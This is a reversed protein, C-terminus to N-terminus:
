CGLCGLGLAYTFQNIRLSTFHSMEGKHSGRSPQIVRSFRSFSKEFYLTVFIVQVCTVSHHVGHNFGRFFGSLHLGFNPFPQHKPYRCAGVMWWSWGYEHSRSGLFTLMAAMLHSVVSKKLWSPFGGLDANFNCTGEPLSVYSHFIVM